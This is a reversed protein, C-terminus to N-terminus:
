ATSETDAGSEEGDTLTRDQDEGRQRDQRSEEQEDGQVEVARVRAPATAHHQTTETWAHGGGRVRPYYLYVRRVGPLERHILYVGYAIIGGCVALVAGLYTVTDLGFPAAIV